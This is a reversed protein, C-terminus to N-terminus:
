SFFDRGGRGRYVALSPKQSPREGQFHPVGRMPSQFLERQYEDLAEKAVVSASFDGTAANLSKLDETILTLEFAVKFMLYDLVPWCSHM